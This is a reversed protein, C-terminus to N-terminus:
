KSNRITRSAADGAHLVHVFRVYTVGMVQASKVISVFRNSMGHAKMQRVGEILRSPTPISFIFDTNEEGVFYPATELLAVDRADLLETAIETIHSGSHSM